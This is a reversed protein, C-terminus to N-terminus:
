IVKAKRPNPRPRLTPGQGMVQRIALRTEHLDVPDPKKFEVWMQPWFGSGVLMPKSGDLMGLKRVVTITWASIRLSVLAVWFNLHLHERTVNKGHLGDCQCIWGVARKKMEDLLICVRLCLESLNEHMLYNAVTQFETFGSVLGVIRSSLSM